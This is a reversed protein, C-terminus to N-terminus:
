SSSHWKALKARNRGPPLKEVRTRGPFQAWVLLTSTHDLLPLQAASAAAVMCCCHDIPSISNRQKLRAASSGTQQGGSRRPLNMSVCQPSCIPTVRERQKFRHFLIEHLLLVSKWLGANLAVKHQGSQLASGLSVTCLRTQTNKSRGGHQSNM